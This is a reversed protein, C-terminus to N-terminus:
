AVGGGRGQYLASAKYRDLAFRMLVGIVTAVPMALLVGVFGFLAGGALLAFIIWVPHLGVRGGVLKPTLINGEIMQGGFFIAAVLAIRTWDDFQVLAVGVSLVMGIIAGVYPIFTLLGAFLGILLGFDLGALTLAIAYAVGLVLCVTGQGRVFGALRDDAKRALDRITPAHQRPLWQDVQDMIRDWDRLLYFAVIPTIVILSLLNALAVGGSLMGLLFGTAWKVVNGTSEAVTTQVKEFSAVDMRAQLSSLLQSIERRLAELYRPVNEAFDVLQQAILPVALVIVAAAIILFSVTLVVTAWTRSLGWDELKDCVPDLLYAIAMGAVFPLLIGRLLYLLLVFVALGILWFAAQREVRLPRQTGM